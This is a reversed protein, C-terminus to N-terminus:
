QLYVSLFSINSKLAIGRLKLVGIGANWVNKLEMLFFTKPQMKLTNQV